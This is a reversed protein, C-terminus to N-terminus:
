EASSIAGGRGWRRAINESTIRAKAANTKLQLSAEMSPTMETIASSM